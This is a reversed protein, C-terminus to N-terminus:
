THIPLGNSLALCTLQRWCASVAFLITRDSPQHLACPQTTGSTTSHSFSCCSNWTEELDVHCFQLCIRRNGIPILGCNPNGMSRDPDQGKAARSGARLGQSDPVMARAHTQRAPQAWKGPGQVPIWMDGQRGERPILAVSALYLFIYGLPKCRAM